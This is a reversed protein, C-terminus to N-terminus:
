KAIFKKGNQIYIGRQPKAIQQGQLNYIRDNTNVTNITCIGSTSKIAEGTVECGWGVAVNGAMETGDTKILKVSKVRVSQKGGLTQLTIRYINTGLTSANFTVTTTSSSSSVKAEQTKYQVNGDKDKGNKDGYVKIQLKDGYAKDLEVNISKYDSVKITNDSWDGYLFAEAWDSTYKVIHEITATPYDGNFSDGHYAKVIREALDAQNFAPIERYAGDSLGMWYFTAIGLDKASKVWYDVFEFMADKRVDYDTKGVGKVVNSTGWEGIIVPLGKSVFNSNLASYMDDVLSKYGNIGKEINPYAHVQVAIHSTEGEPITLTTLPDKLHANWTDYGNCAGYTNIILNRTANNGGTARVTTVFSQAYSNIANYASTAVTADYKNTSKFSAFCWSSLKDLMENYSEFLLHEDYDKFEEAIQKWLNEYRTKNQEYNTEDAKIWSKFTDGDAGTDHHVNVICYLGQSIVYDVVEHVRKMWEANVKGDKDMHNYWTVPVRIAGFGADKMMKILEPKAKSQGWCTESELGQQGWYNDKTVDYYTQSNAELTNGLNWGVGMNKVAQTATEFEQALLHMGCMLLLALITNIRKNM